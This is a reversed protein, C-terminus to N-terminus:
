GRRVTRGDLTRRYPGDRNTLFGRPRGKKINAETMRQSRSKAVAPATVSPTIREHCSARVCACNDISRLYALRDPAADRGEEAPEIHHYQAPDSKTIPLGGCGDFEPVMHCECRPADPGGARKWAALKVRKPFDAARGM